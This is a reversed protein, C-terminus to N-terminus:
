VHVKVVAAAGAGVTVLTVGVAPLVPTAIADFTVAVKPAAIFADVIVPEVKVNVPPPPDTVPVTVYEELVFV